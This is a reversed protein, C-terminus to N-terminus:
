QIEDNNAILIKGDDFLLSIKQNQLDFSIVTAKKGSYFSDRESVYSVIDGTRIGAFDSVDKSFGKSIYTYVAHFFVAGNNCNHNFESIENIMKLMEDNVYVPVKVDCKVYDPHIKKTILLNKMIHWDESNYLSRIANEYLAAASLHTKQLYVCILDELGSTIM